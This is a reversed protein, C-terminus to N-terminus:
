KNSPHSSDLDDASVGKKALKPPEEEKVPEPKEEKEEVEDASKTGNTIM